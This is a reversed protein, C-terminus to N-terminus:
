GRLFIAAYAVLLPKVSKSTNLSSRLLTFPRTSMWKGSPGVAWKLSELRTRLLSMLTQGSRCKHQSSIIDFSDLAGIM